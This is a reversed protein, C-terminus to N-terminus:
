EHYDMSEHVYRKILEDHESTRQDERVMESVLEHYTTKPTWGVTNFISTRRKIDPVIYGKELLFEALCSGDQGTILALKPQTKM